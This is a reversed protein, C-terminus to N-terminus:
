GVNKGLAKRKDKPYETNRLSGWGGCDQCQYKSYKGTNTYYYGRFHIHDSGCRGCVTEDKELFVGLNPHTKMYPRLRLYVEETTVVDQVNYKQMEEWAKLNGALCEVWLSHGPFKAHSSKPQVGLVKALQDLRYSKLRMSKQAERMTDILKYPSPPQYGHTIAKGVIWRNDFKQINHGVLIDAEDLVDVLIDTIKSDDHTRNEAYYVTPDDLDKYAFSMIFDDEMIQNPAINQKWVGWVHALNPATEIDITRIIPKSM